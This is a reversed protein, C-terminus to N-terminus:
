TIETETIENQLESKIFFEPEYIHLQWKAVHLKPRSRIIMTWIYRLLM